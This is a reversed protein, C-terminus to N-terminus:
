QLHFSIVFIGSPPVLLSIIVDTWGCAPISFLRVFLCQPYEGLLSSIRLTLASIMFPVLRNIHPLNRTNEWSAPGDTIGDRSSSRSSWHSADVFSEQRLKVNDDYRAGDGDRPTVSAYSRASMSGWHSAKPSLHFKM